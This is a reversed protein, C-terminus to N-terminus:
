SLMIYILSPISTPRHTSSFVSPISPSSTLSALPAPWVFLRLFWATINSIPESLLPVWPLTNSLLYSVSGAELLCTQGFHPAPAPSSQDSLSLFSNSFGPQLSHLWSGVHQSSFTNSWYHKSNSELHISVSSSHYQSIPFSTSWSAMRNHSLMLSASPLVLLSPFPHTSDSIILHQTSIDIYCFPLHHLPEHHLSRPQLYIGTNRRWISSLYFRTFLTINDWPSHKTLLPALVSWYFIGTLYIM